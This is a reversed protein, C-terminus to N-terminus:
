IDKLIGTLQGAYKKMRKRIEPMAEQAANPLKLDFGAKFGQAWESLFAGDAKNFGMGNQHLTLRSLMEDYEQYNYLIVVCKKLFEDDHELKQQIVLTKQNM